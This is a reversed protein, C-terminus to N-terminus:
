IGANSVPTAPAVATPATEAESAAINQSESEPQRSDVSPSAASTTTAAAAASAAVGNVGSDSASESAKEESQSTQDPEQRTNGAVSKKAIDSVPKDEQEGASRSAVPSDPAAQEVSGERRRVVLQRWKETLRRARGKIDFSEEPADGLRDSNAIIRVVKGMKTEQILELTMDFDELKKIVEHVPTLDDPVEGKIVTKQLRHRLQMCLQYAKSRNKSGQHSKSGSGTRDHKEDDRASASKYDPSPHESPSGSRPSDKTASRSTDSDRRVSVLPSGSNSGSNDKTARSSAATRSRKPTTTEMDDGSSSSSFSARKRSSATRTARGNNGQARRGAAAKTKAPQNSDSDASQMEVDSDAASHEKDEKEDEEEEESTEAAAAAAAAAVNRKIINEAISPDVAQKLADAFSPDKRNKAKSGHKALNEEYPELNEATLWANHM